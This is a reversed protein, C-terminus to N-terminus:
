MDGGVNFKFDVVDFVLVFLFVYVNVLGCIVGIVIILM